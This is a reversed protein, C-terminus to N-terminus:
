RRFCWLQIGHLTIGCTRIRVAGVSNLGEKKAFPIERRVGRLSFSNTSLPSSHRVRIIRSQNIIYVVVGM